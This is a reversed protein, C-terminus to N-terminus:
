PAYAMGYKNLIAPPAAAPTVATWPAVAPSVVAAGPAGPWVPARATPNTQPAGRSRNIGDWESKPNLAECKNLSLDAVDAFYIQAKKPVATSRLTAANGAFPNWPGLHPTIEGALWHGAWQRVALSESRLSSPGSARQCVFSAPPFRNNRKKRNM